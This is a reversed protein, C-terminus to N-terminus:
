YESRSALIEGSHEEVTYILTLVLILAYILATMPMKHQLIDIWIISGVKKM